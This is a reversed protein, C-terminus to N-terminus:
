LKKKDKVLAPLLLNFQLYDRKMWLTWTEEFLHGTAPKWIAKILGYIYSICTLSLMASKTTGLLLCNSGLSIECNMSLCIDFIATKIKPNIKPKMFFVAVYVKVRMEANISKKM